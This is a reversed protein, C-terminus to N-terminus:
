GEMGAPAVPDIILYSQITSIVFPSYPIFLELVLLLFLARGQDSHVVEINVRKNLLEFYEILYLIFPFSVM